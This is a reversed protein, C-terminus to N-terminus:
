RLMEKMKRIADNFGEVLLETNVNQSGSASQEDLIWDEVIDVIDDCVFGDYDLQVKLMNYLKQSKHEEVMKDIIKQLNPNDKEDWYAKVNRYPEDADYKGKRVENFWVGELLRHTEGDTIATMVVGDVTHKRKFWTHSEDNFQLRLYEEDNYSVIEFKGGFDFEMRPQSKDYYDDEKVKEEYAANYGAQFGQWRTADSTWNETGPYEGWWDKYAEEVPSKTKELEDLFSLKSQLMKIEQKLLEIEKNSTMQKLYPTADMVGDKIAQRFANRLGEDVQEPTQKKPYFETM